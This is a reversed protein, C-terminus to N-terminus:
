KLAQLASDVANQSFGVLLRGGIDIIPISSTPAMGAKALKNRLEAQVTPSEDVDKELVRVGKQSLYKKAQRCAGCWKAGYVIALKATQATAESARNATQATAIPALAELRAKRKVAGLEEWASRSMPTVAYTFDAKKERLDAVYIPDSNGLDSTTIVVRVREKSNAPVEALSQVVHFDGADDIWTLLLDKTDDRL